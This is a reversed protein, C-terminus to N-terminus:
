LCFSLKIMIAFHARFYLSSFYNPLCILRQPSVQRRVTIFWFLLSFHHSLLLLQVCPIFYCGVLKMITSVQLQLVATRVQVQFVFTISTLENHLSIICSVTVIKFSQFSVILIRSGHMHCWMYSITCVTWNQKHIHWMFRIIRVHLPIYKRCNHNVYVWWLCSCINTSSSSTSKPAPVEKSTLVRETWPLTFSLESHATISANSSNETWPMNSCQITGSCRLWIGGIEPNTQTKKRPLIAVDM